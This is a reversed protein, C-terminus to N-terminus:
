SHSREKDIVQHSGSIKLLPCMQYILGSIIKQPFINENGLLNLALSKRCAFSACVLSAQSRAVETVSSSRWGTSFRFWWLCYFLLIRPSLVTGHFFESFDFHVMGLGKSTTTMFVALCVFNFILFANSIQIVKNRRSSFFSQSELIESAHEGAQKEEQHTSRPCM